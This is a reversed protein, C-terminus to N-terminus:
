FQFYFNQCFTEGNWKWVWKSWVWFLALPATCSEFTLWLSNIKNRKCLAYCLSLIIQRGWIPSSDWLIIKHYLQYDLLLGVVLTVVLSQTITFYGYATAPVAKLSFNLGKRKSFNLFLILFLITEPWVPVCPLEKFNFESLLASFLVSLWFLFDSLGTWSCSSFVM